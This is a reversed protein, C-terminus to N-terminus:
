AALEALTAFGLGAARAREALPALAEATPQASDRDAYRASDHLLVIVGDALDRGALDAIRAPMLPDWDAGWASWYAPRLELRSCAAYSHESCRGYPPRYWRPRRGTAAELAGLGRALDDRAQQPSLQEHHEHGFGHLAVEHGRGVVDRGIDQHRMLQEGLMFFTAQAGIADLADLVAPTADPDPGDDFTLAIRGSGAEARELAPFREWLDFTERMERFSPM